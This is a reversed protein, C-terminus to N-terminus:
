QNGHAERKLAIRAQWEPSHLYLVSLDLVSWPVAWNRTTYGWNHSDCLTILGLDMWTSMFRVCTARIVKYDLVRSAGPNPVVCWGILDTLKNPDVTWGPIKKELVSWEEFLFDGYDTFRFKADFRKMEGNRLMIIRDVGSKQFAGGGSPVEVWELADPLYRSFLADFDFVGWGHSEASLSEAFTHM